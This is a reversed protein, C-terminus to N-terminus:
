GDGRAAARLAYALVGAQASSLLMPGVGPVCISLRWGNRAQEFILQRRERTEENQTEIVIRTGDKNITVPEYASTMTRTVGENTTGGLM